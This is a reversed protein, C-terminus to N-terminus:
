LQDFEEPAFWLLDYGDQVAAAEPTALATTLGEETSDRGAVAKRALAVAELADPEDAFLARVQTWALGRVEVEGDSRGFDKIQEEQVEAALVLRPGNPTRMLAFVGANSLAAYEVEEMVTDAELSAALGPTAACGRYHSASTGSRLAQAENRTMPIFIMQAM